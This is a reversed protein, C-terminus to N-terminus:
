LPKTHSRIGENTNALGTSENVVIPFRGVLTPDGLSDIFRRIAHHRRLRAQRVRIAGVAEDLRRTAEFRRLKFM